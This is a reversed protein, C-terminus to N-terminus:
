FEIAIGAGASVDGNSSIGVTGRGVVDESFRANGGFAYGWEGQFTGFGAGISFNSNNTLHPINAMATAIAIGGTNAEIDNGLQNFRQRVDPGLKDFTVAGDAINNTNIAGDAIDVSTISGDTINIVNPGTTRNDPGGVVEINTAVQSTLDDVTVSRMDGQANISVIRDSSADGQQLVGQATVTQGATGLVVQDVMRTTAGAGIATSNAHTAQAANGIATANGGTAVSENGFANNNVTGDPLNNADVGARANDGVATGGGAAASGAGMATSAFATAGAGVATTRDGDALANRGAAFTESGNAIANQGVAVSNEGNAQSDRIDTNDARFYRIGGGNQINNIETTNNDIDTRNDAINITNTDIDTRNNAINTTNTTVRNDLNDIDTRNRNIETRNDAINTTNTDIDTRNNAINTENTTVRNDLNTINTTNNAINTTNTDVQTSVEQFADTVNGATGGNPTVFSVNGVNYTGDPNVVMQGIVTNVNMAQSQLQAVNVAEDPASGAAVGQIRRGGVSVIGDTPAADATSYGAGTSATTTTSAGLAIDGEASATAGFGLATADAANAIANNGIATAQTANAEAGFGGAVADTGTNSPAADLAANESRFPGATGNTIGTVDSGIADFVDQVSGDDIITPVDLGAYDFGGTFTGTTADYVVDGGFITTDLSNGQATVITDQAAIAAGVNDYNTTGVTFTPATGTNIDAGGGLYDDILDNNAFFQAGNIAEDSTGSVAGDAVGSLVRANGDLNNFQVETGNTQAGVTIPNANGAGPTGVQQVLGVNGNNINTIDGEIETFVNQVNTIPNGDYTFGGTVTGTAADYSSTGGFTAATSNGQETVITDQLTLADAVTNVAPNGGIVFDPATSVGTTVDFAAGGGIINANADAAAQAQDVNIADNGNTGAAVGTLRRGVSSQNTFDVVTGDTGAGVTIDAANGPGPVGAQQVLGVNGNNINTINTTNTDVQTTVSQFADTVNDETTSNPTVFSVSGTNYTGDANITTQGIVTNINAAQAGLQAVNVAEDAASGAAVGQIRRNGVSAVGNGPDATSTGYATGGSASTTTGSGLAVDNANTATAGDGLALSSDGNAEAANGGASSNTGNAQAAVGGTAETMFDGSVGGNIVNTIDTDIADFVAQVTSDTITTGAAQGSYDFGNATRSGDANFLDDGSLLGDILQVQSSLQSGNIAEDSAATVAGNSLGSLIRTGATGDFQVETGDTAAGVTIPAGAAAQQVLGATGNTINTINTTNTDVQTTVETFAQDINDASGGNPTTFSPATYNGAADFVNEGVLTNIDGAQNALQGVTAADSANVGDAVGQVRRDGMAVVSGPAAAQTGYAAGGVAATASGSGIAVSDDASATAGAGLALSRDGSAVAGDGGASADDGSAAAAVTASVTSTVFDGGGSGVLGAAAEIASQVTTYATGGVTAVTGNTLNGNADILDNSGILADIQDAQDSLQAVNVADTANVGGSLNQIRREFGAAGVSVVSNPATAGTAYALGGPVDTISFAGLAVDSQNTADARNGLAQTFDARSAAFRGVATSAIGSAFSTSGLAVSSDGTARALIGGASADDGSAIPAISSTVANTVFDGGGSGGTMAAAEIAEQVTTYATGGVTAVTGGTLNGNADILDNSGILADIQDAQDSLQAVNVADTADVGDSVGQIRRGGVAFASAPAAAQTGYALGGVAVTASGQGLAVDGAATATADRGIAVANNASATSDFGAAISFEGSAEARVGIAAAAQASAESFAGLALSRAGSANAGEGGASAGTGAVVTPPGGSLADTLFDGGGSGGTMAAAEIASQVTTYATGGVTAVTGNTLNGNADILDNSGILADIQDAQDSLQAVNVADTAAVGGSVGQIRRNGVAVVSGPAATGTGYAVGGIAATTSGSGLAVSDNATATAGAGLALSRAGSATAGDGGASADDGSANPAAVASVTSTRFDGAGGPGAGIDADIADFVAQVDAFNTSDYSFPSAVPNGNVDILNNSSLLGDVVNVQDILQGVNVADTANVGGSLNQIRRENGATGISVASGPAAAQTGYALGGVASTGSGAGLAVDGANTEAFAGSGLAVGGVQDTSSSGGIAIGEASLAIASSGVGISQAFAAGSDRGISISNVGFANTENGLAVSSDGSAESDSGLALAARGSAVAEDGGAAATVGSAVPAVYGAQQDSVFDGAGGPGAAQLVDIDADIADFVAQVDARGGEYNFPNAVANGNADVLNNSSLLGDIVNVQDALQAVNVADTANVGDSVGQIRRNGIALVSGPAAAQTGYALGGVAGSVSGAGLAVDSANNAAADTGIAVGSTGAGTARLGVAISSLATARSSNGVAVASTNSTQADAGVAVAFAGAAVAGDGGASASNGSAVPAVYPPAQNSVFDGGGSGGTMAAAEIAEQVTAYATGGVTAVIGGTRNGKADILDNSGILSDIQDAQDSLQAVNVADGADAGPAVHTIRRM